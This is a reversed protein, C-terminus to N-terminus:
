LVFDGLKFSLKRVSLRFQLFLGIFMVFFHLFYSPGIKFEQILFFLNDSSTRFNFNGPYSPKSFIISSDPKSRGSLGM